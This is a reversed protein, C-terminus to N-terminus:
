LAFLSDPPLACRPALRVLECPYTEDWCSDDRSFVCNSVVKPAVTSPAALPVPTACRINDCNESVVPSALGLCFKDAVPVLSDTCVINRLRLAGSPSCSCTSWATADWAYLVGDTPGTAPKSFTTPVEINCADSVCDESTPPMPLQLESCLTAAMPFAGQLTCSIKRSRTGVGCSASCASWSAATYVLGSVTSPTTAPETPACAARTCSRSSQPKLARTCHEHQMPKSDARNICEITASEIGAGCSSSCASWSLVNWSYETKSAPLLVREIVHVVGNTAEIDVVLVSSLVDDVALAEGDMTYLTGGAKLDSSMYLGPVIHYRIVQSLKSQNQPLLLSDVTGQIKAFAANSPAFLTFPGGAACAFTTLHQFMRRLHM